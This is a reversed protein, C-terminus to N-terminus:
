EVVSGTPTLRVGDWEVCVLGDQQYEALVVATNGLLHKYSFAYGVNTLLLPLMSHFIGGHGVLLINASTAGYQRVLDQFFPAFRSRVGRIATM